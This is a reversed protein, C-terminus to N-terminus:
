ISKLYEVLDKKEQETMDPVLEAIDDASNFVLRTIGATYRSNGGCEAEPAAELRRM